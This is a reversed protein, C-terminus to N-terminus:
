PALQAARWWDIESSGPSTGTANLGAIALGLRVDNPFDTGAASAMTYTTSLKVGNRYFSLVNNSPDFVIGLKVYTDAVLTVAASQVTVATVGDAKYVTAVSAGGSAAEGRFFGVLNIDALAGLATIPSTATLAVDATLGVFLNHKTDTITSSKVRCEFWFKGQNRAIQFPACGTRFSAGENDGDSSLDLTGGWEGGDQVLGGTDAFGRYGGGYGAYSAEAGAAVRPGNLFDDEIVIGEKYGARIEAWPCDAWISPSPLRTTDQMGANSSGRYQTVNM